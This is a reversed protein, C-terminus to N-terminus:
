TRLWILRVRHGSSSMARAVSGTGSRRACSCSPSPDIQLLSVHKTLEYERRHEAGRRVTTHDDQPCSWRDACAGGDRHYLVVANMMLARRIGGGPGGGIGASAPCSSTLRVNQRKCSRSSKRSGKM